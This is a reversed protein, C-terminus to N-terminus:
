NLVFRVPMNFQVRVPQGRQLGPNWRPMIRALRIAEEDCGGGIGRLVRIDTISGDREVVFTLFVTGQIGSERAMQPYWLNDTLYRIRAEEGGPFSPQSEVVTFIMDEIKEEEKQIIVPRFENVGVNSQVRKGENLFSRDFVLVAYELRGNQDRFERFEVNVTGHRFTTTLGNAKIASVGEDESNFEQFLRTFCSASPQFVVINSKGTKTYLWLNERISSSRRAWVVVDYDPKFDFFPDVQNDQVGSFIWGENRLFGSVDILSTEQMRLISIGAM